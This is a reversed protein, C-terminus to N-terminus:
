MYSLVYVLQNMCTDCIIIILRYPRTYTSAFMYKGVKEGISINETLDFYYTQCVWTTLWICYCHIFILETPLAYPSQNISTEPEIGSHTM